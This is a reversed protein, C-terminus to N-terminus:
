PFDTLMYIIQPFDKKVHLYYLKLIFRKFHTNLTDEPFNKPNVIWRFPMSRSRALALAIRSM